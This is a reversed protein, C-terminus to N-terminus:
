SQEIKQQFSTKNDGSNLDNNHELFLIPDKLLAPTAELERSLAPSITVVVTRSKGNIEAKAVIVDGLRMIVEDFGKISDLLEKTAKARKLMNEAGLKDISARRATERLEDYVEKGESQIVPIKSRFWDVFHWSAFYEEAEKEKNKVISGKDFYCHVARKLRQIKAADEVERANPLHIEVLISNKGGLRILNNMLTVINPKKLHMNLLTRMRSRYLAIKLRNNKEVLCLTRGLVKKLNSM